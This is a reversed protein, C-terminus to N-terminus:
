PRPDLVFPLYGHTAGCTVIELSGTEQIKRFVSILDNKAVYDLSEELARETSGLAAGYKAPIRNREKRLTELVGSAHRRYRDKLLPDVLMECLPPSMTMTLRFTVRDQLLREMMRALPIYTEGIAEYLWDEELFQPFEPHRVFPLHAHLVLSLYGSPEITM